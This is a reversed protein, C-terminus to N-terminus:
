SSVGTWFDEKGPRVYEPTGAKSLLAKGRFYLEMSNPILLDNQGGPRKM